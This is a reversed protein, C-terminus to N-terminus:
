EDEMSVEAPTEEVTAAAPVTGYLAIEMDEDPVNVAVLLMQVYPNQSTSGTYNYTNNITLAARILNQTNTTSTNAPLGIQIGYPGKNYLPVTLTYCSGNWEDKSLKVTVPESTVMHPFEVTGAQDSKNLGVRDVGFFTRRGIRVNQAM